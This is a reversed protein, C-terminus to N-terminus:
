INLTKKKLLAVIKDMAKEVTMGYDLYYKLLRTFEEPQIAVFVENDDYIVAIKM